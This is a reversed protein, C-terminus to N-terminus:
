LAMFLLLYYSSDCSMQIMAKTMLVLQILSSGRGGGGGGWLVCVCVGPM